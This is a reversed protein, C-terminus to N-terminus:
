GIQDFPQLGPQKAFRAAKKGGVPELTWKYTFIGQLQSLEGRKVSSSLTTITGLQGCKDRIVRPTLLLSNARCANLFDSVPVVPHQYEWRMSWRATSKQRETSWTVNSQICLTCEGTSSLLWSSGSCFSIVLSYQDTSIRCQEKRSLFHNIKKKKSFVGRLIRQKINDSSNWFLFVIISLSRPSFIKRSKKERLFSHSFIICFSYIITNNPFWEM